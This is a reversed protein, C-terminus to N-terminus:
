SVLMWVMTYIANPHAAIAYQRLWKNDIAHQPHHPNHVPHTEAFAVYYFPPWGNETILWGIHLLNIRAEIWRGQKVVFVTM